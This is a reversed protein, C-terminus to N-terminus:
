TIDGQITDFQECPVLFSLTGGGEGKRVCFDPHYVGYKYQEDDVSVIEVEVGNPFADKLKQVQNTHRVKDGVKLKAKISYKRVWEKILQQYKSIMALYVGDLIDVDQSDLEYYFQNELERAIKYGDIDYQVSLVEKLEDIIKEAQSDAEGWAKALERGIKEAATNIVEDAYFSPRKPFAGDFLPM